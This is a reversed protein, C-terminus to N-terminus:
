LARELHFGPKDCLWHAEGDKVCLIEEFKVGFDVGGIHPEVAWLGDISGRFDANLIQGFLGRSLYDWYSQWGFHIFSAELGVPVRRLRHGLVGFPYTAHINEYGRSKIDQDIAHWLGHGRQGEGVKAVFMGPIRERLEHLYSIAGDYGAHQGYCGSFGIDAVFGDRIPAVDLIFVDGACLARKTPQYDWYNNVGAFRTRDGWWVFPRHFFSKVGHDRLWVEMLKAAHQESWGEQLLTAIEQSCNFALKQLSDYQKTDEFEDVSPRQGALRGLFPLSEFRSAWSLIESM